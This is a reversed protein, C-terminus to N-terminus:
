AGRRRRIMGEQAMNAILRGDRAYFRGFNLGRGRNSWPSMADFLIWDDVRAEDHFWVAHDLSASTIENRQWSLGHPLVCTGLLQMDSLWALLARHLQPDDGVPAAIRFWCRQAPEHPTELLWQAESMPRIEVARPRTYNHRFEPAIKDLYKHGLQTINLLTDPDPVDPMPTTHNLGEEMRQFSCSMNLIVDGHQSATVRRASFSRGDQDRDVHYRAPITVNGPRIFYAHLSHIIRDPEPVTRMASALAQAIIEGGYIRGEDDDLRHGVFRDGGMEEVTLLSELERVLAEVTQTM